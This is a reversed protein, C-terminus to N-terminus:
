GGEIDLAAFRPDEGRYVLLLIAGQGASRAGAVRESLAEPTTVPRQGAEAIVDGERIGKGFAESGEDLGLVVLGDRRADIGYRARLADDLPALRMALVTQPADPSQGGGDLKLAFFVQGEAGSVLLLFGTRGEARALAIRRDLADISAVPAGGAENIVDGPRLGRSYADSTEDVRTVMLGQAVSELGASARDAASLPRLDMGLRTVAPAEAQAPPAPDPKNGADPAAAPANQSLPAIVLETARAAGGRLYTIELRAGAPRSAIVKVLHRVNEIEYGGAAVIVDGAQLGAVQAPGESVQTVLAGMAREMGLPSLMEETVDQIRVGVRGRDPHDTLGAGAQPDREAPPLGPARAAAEAEARAREARLAELEAALRAREEASRARAEAEAALKEREAWLAEVERALREAEEATKTRDALQARLADLEAALREAREADARRAAAEDEFRTREEKLAEAAAALREREARLAEREAALAGDQAAAPVAAKLVGSQALILAMPTAFNVGSAAMGGYHLGVVQQLGADIVPSGSNGPLTDCTHLLNTESIAPASAQCKERSIRQAEGLPHGIVWFPDNDQPMTASLPLAGFEANADGIVELVSYDLEASTEIPVPNVHFTKVGETVGERVYGAKFIVSVIARAGAAQMQPNDLVGPVCHHNTVLRNGDVLFATCPAHGANTLIDLRGVARGTRAFISQPGYTSIFENNYDGIQTELRLGGAMSEQKPLLTQGFTAPPFLLIEQAQATAAFLIPLALLALRRM